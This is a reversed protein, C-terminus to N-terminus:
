KGNFLVADIKGNVCVTGDHYSSCVLREGKICVETGKAALIMEEPSYKLIRRCGQVYMTNLGRMEVHLEGNFTDCSIDGKIALYEFFGIKDKNSKDGDKNM